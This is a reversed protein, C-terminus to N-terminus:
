RAWTPSGGTSSVQPRSCFLLTQTMDNEYYTTKLSKWAGGLKFNIIIIKLSSQINAQKLHDSTIPFWIFPHTTTHTEKQQTTNDTQLEHYLNENSIQPSIVRRPWEVLKGPAITKQHFMPRQPLHGVISSGWTYHM